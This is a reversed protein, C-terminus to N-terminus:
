CVIVGSDIFFYQGDGYSHAAQTLKHGLSGYGRDWFGAGHRCRTLWFDHGHQSFDSNVQLLTDYNDNFFATCDATITDEADRSFECMDANDCTITEGNEDTDYVGVWRVCACYGAIFHKLQMDKTM